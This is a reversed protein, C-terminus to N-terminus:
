TVNLYRSYQTYGIARAVAVSPANLIQTNYLPVLDRELAWATVASVCAKAYGRGRFAPATSIGVARFPPRGQDILKATSARASRVYVAFAAELHWRKGEEAFERETERVEQWLSDDPRVPEATAGAYERFTERTCYFLVNEESVSWPKARVPLIGILRRLMHQQLLAHRSCGKLVEALQEREALNSSVLGGHRTVAVALPHRGGTLVAVREARLDEPRCGFYGAYEEDLMDTIESM